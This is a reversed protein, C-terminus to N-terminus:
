PNNESVNGTSENIQRNDENDQNFSKQDILQYITSLALRNNATQIRSNVPRYQDSSKTSM